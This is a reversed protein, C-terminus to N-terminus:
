YGYKEEEIIYDVFIHPTHINDIAIKGIDVIKKAQCIVKEGAMAMLPNFNRTTGNYITNGIKDVVSGYIISIDAKLQEELLYKEGNLDIINKGNEVLTGVGTKTLFGGIGYGGSRIKEALTGQPILEIEMEGSDMKKGALPNLGIHSAILKKVVGAAILRGVGKNEFGADNCIVTLEKVDSELIKDIIIEPTGCAMFGGIMITMNDKFLSKIDDAKIIKKM